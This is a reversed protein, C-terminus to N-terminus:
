LGTGVQAGRRTQGRDPGTELVSKGNFEHPALQVHKCFNRKHFEVFGPPLDTDAASQSFHESYTMATRTKADAM